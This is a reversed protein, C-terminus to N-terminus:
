VMLGVKRGIRMELYTTYADFIGVQQITLRIRLMLFECIAVYRQMSRTMVEALDFRAEEYMHPEILEQNILIDFQPKLHDAVSLDVIPCSLRYTYVGTCEELIRYVIWPTNALWRPKIPITIQPCEGLTRHERRLM